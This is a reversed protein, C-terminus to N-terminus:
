RCHYGQCAISHRYGDRGGLLGETAQRWCPSLVVMMDVVSVFARLTAQPPGMFGEFAGSYVWVDNPCAFFFFFANEM